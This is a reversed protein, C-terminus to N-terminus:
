FNARVQKQLQGRVYLKELRVREEYVQTKILQIERLAPWVILISIAALLIIFVGASIQFRNKLTLDLNM